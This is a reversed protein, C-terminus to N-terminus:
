SPSSRRRTSALSACPASPLPSTSTSSNRTGASPARNSRPPIQALWHTGYQEVTIDPDVLVRGARRSLPLVRALTDEAKQKTKCTVWRRRGTADRYDVVWGGRRKRICAM